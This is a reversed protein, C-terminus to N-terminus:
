KAAEPPKPYSRMYELIEPPAHQKEAQQVPKNGFMDTMELAKPCAEVLVQVIELSLFSSFFCVALLPTMCGKDVMELAAPCAEVLLQILELSPFKRCCLLHLPTRDNKDKMELAKPCAEMVLKVTELKAERKCAFHLPTMGDENTTELIEAPSTDIIKQLKEPSLDNQIGQFIDPSFASCLNGM